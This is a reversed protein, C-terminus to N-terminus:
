AFTHIRNDTVEVEVGNDALVMGSLIGALAIKEDDDNTVVASVMCGVENIENVANPDITIIYGSLGGELDAAILAVSDTEFMSLPFTLEYEGVVFRVTEVGDAKLEALLEVSLHLNRLAYTGDEEPAATIILLNNEAEVEEYEEPNYDEDTVISVYLDPAPTATPAAEVAKKTKKYSSAKKATYNDKYQDGCVECTHLDYGRSTTTAKVTKTTYKHGLPLIEDQPLLIEECVSCKKGETLGVEECTPDVAPLVEETHGLAPIVEQQLIIAGCVSCKKGDTLGDECCTAAKGPITVETHGKAPITEQKQLVKGCSSCKKGEKLGTATCTPEKGAITEEKHGAPVVTPKELVVGCESCQKGGTQGNTTCTAEVNAMAVPKHGAPVTTPKEIVAGCESCQKGGTRGNTTCSAAVEPMAVPKHSAPITQPKEITKGCDNCKKGATSGAETCTAEKAPISVVATHNDNVPITEQKQTVKGCDSCKKGDTLGTSTCTAAKGSITTESHGKAPITQPKEFVKGCDACKSGATTGAETCTAAKASTIATKNSHSCEAPAADEAFAAFSIALMAVVALLLAVIKKNM